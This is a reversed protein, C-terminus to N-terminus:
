SLHFPKKPCFSRIFCGTYCRFFDWCQMTGCHPETFLLFLIFMGTLIRGIIKVPMNLLLGAALLMCAVHLLDKSLYRTVIMVDVWIVSLLILVATIGWVKKTERNIWFSKGSLLVLLLGTWFLINEMVYLLGLGAQEHPSIQITGRITAAMIPPHWDTYIGSQAEHLMLM